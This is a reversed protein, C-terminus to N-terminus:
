PPDRKYFFISVGFNRDAGLGAGGEPGTKEPLPGLIFIGDRNRFPAVRGGQGLVRPPSLNPLFGRKPPGPRIGLAGPGLWWGM